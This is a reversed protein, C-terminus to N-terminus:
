VITKVKERFEPYRRLITQWASENTVLQRIKRVSIGRKPEYETLFSNWCKDPDLVKRYCFYGKVNPWGGPAQVWGECLKCLSLNASHFKGCPSM